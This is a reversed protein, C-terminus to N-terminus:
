PEGRRAELRGKLTEINKIEKDWSEVADLQLAMAQIMAEQKEIIEVQMDIIEATTM